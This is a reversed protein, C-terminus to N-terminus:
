DGGAQSQDTEGRAAALIADVHAATADCFKIGEVEFVVQGANDPFAPALDTCALICLLEESDGFASRIYRILASRGEDARGSYFYTELLDGHAAIDANSVRRLTMGRQMLADDFLRGQMTVSTGLVVADKAINGPLKSAVADLISVIGIPSNKSIASLRNHPTVSAIAAIDCGVDHLRGLAQQFISDFALWSEEDNAAGRAELTKAMDLSEITMEPSGTDGGVRARRCIAEYYAATAPWGLGGILGIKFSM